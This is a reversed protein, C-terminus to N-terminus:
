NTEAEMAAAPTADMTEPTTRPQADTGPASRDAAPTPESSTSRPAPTSSACGILMAAMAAIVLTVIRM